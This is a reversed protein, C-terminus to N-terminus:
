QVVAAISETLVIQEYSEPMKISRIWQWHRVRWATGERYRLGHRLLFKSLRHPAALLNRRADDRARMLDRVSERRRDPVVIM